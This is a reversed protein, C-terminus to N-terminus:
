FAEKFFAFFLDSEFIVKVKKQRNDITKNNTTKTKPKPKKQSFHITFFFDILVRDDNHFSLSIVFCGFFFM